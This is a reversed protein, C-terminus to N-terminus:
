FSCLRRILCIMEGKGFPLLLLLICDFCASFLPFSFNYEGTHPPSPSSFSLSIFLSCAFVRAPFRPGAVKQWPSSLHKVVARNKWVGCKTHGSPDGPLQLFFVGAAATDTEMVEPPPAVPACSTAAAAGDARPHARAQGGGRRGPSLGLLYPPLAAKGQTEWLCPWWQRGVAAWLDVLPLLLETPRLAFNAFHFCFFRGRRPLLLAQILPVSAVSARVTHASTLMGRHLMYKHFATLVDDSKYCDASLFCLLFFFFFFCLFLFACFCGRVQM